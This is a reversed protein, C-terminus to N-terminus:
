RVLYACLADVTADIIRQREISQPEFVLSHVMASITRSTVIAAAELDAPRLIERHRSLVTLVGTYIKEAQRQVRAAIAPDAYALMHMERNLGISAEHERLLGDMVARIIAPYSVPEREADRLASDRVSDFEEDYRDLIATFLDYKDAFYSYLCGVSVGAERAIDVTTSKYYGQACFVKYAADLVKVKKDISRKQQPSRTKTNASM